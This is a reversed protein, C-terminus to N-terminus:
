HAEFRIYTAGVNVIDGDVLVQENQIKTGNVM